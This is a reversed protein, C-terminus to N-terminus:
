RPEKTEAAEGKAPRTTAGGASPQNESKIEYFAFPLKDTHQASGPEGRAVATGLLIASCDWCDPGRFPSDELKGVEGAPDYALGAGCPCRSHAAYVLREALPRARQRDNLMKGAEERLKRAEGELREAEKLKAEIADM